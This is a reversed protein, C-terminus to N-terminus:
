NQLWSKPYLQFLRWALDVTWALTIQYGLSLASLPVKGDRIKFWVGSGEKVGGPIKPGLIEIDAKSSIFPITAVIMELVSKLRKSAIEKNKTELNAAANLSVLVEEPDYLETKGSLLSSLHNNDIESQALNGWDIYRMAGYAIINCEHYDDESEIGSNGRLKSDQIVGDKGEIQIATENRQV